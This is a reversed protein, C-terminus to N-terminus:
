EGGAGERTDGTYDLVRSLIRLLAEGSVAQTSYSPSPLLKRYSLERFSRRPGPYLRYMLGGRVPFAKMIMLSLGGLTAPEGPGANRPLWRDGAVLAWAEGASAEPPLAGSARFVFLAADGYSVRSLPLVRDLEAATQAPAPRPFPLSFALLLVPLPVPKKM